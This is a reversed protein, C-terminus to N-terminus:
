NNTVKWLSDDNSANRHFIRQFKVLLKLIFRGEKVDIDMDKRRKSESYDTVGKHVGLGVLIISFLIVLLLFM